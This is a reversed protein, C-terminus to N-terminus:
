EGDPLEISHYWGLDRLRDVQQRSDEAALRDKAQGMNRGRGVRKCSRSYSTSPTAPTTPTARPPRGGISPRAGAARQRHRRAGGDRAARVPRVRQGQGEGPHAGPHAEPVPLAHLARLALVAQLLAARRQVEPLQRHVRYGAAAGHRLQFLPGGGRAAGPAAPPPRHRRHSPAAGAAQARGRSPGRSDRDSDMYGPQRYKRDSDM